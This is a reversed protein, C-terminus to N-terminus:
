PASQPWPLICTPSAAGDAGVRAPFGTQPDIRMMIVEHSRENAVYLLDGDLAIHRPWAGVPVETVYRPLTGRLRARVRQGHGPRPQRRVPVATAPWSLRSTPGDAQSAPVAGLLKGDADYGLVQGSLEATVYYHSASRCCTGRVLVWAARRHRGYQMLKGSPSLRYRYIADGGLDTVLLGGGVDRVM